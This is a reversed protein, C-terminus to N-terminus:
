LVMSSAPVKAPLDEMDSMDSSVPPPSASPERQKESRGKKKKKERPEPDEVELQQSAEVADGDDPAQEPLEQSPELQSDQIPDESLINMKAPVRKRASAWKDAATKKKKKEKKKKAPTPELSAAAEEAEAEAEALARAEAEAEADEPGEAMLAPDIQLGGEQAEAAEDDEAPEETREVEEEDSHVFEESREAKRSRSKGKRKGKTRAASAPEATVHLVKMEEMDNYDDGDVDPLCGQEDYQTVLHQACDRLSRELHGPVEKKLRHWLLGLTERHWRARFKQDLLRLWPIAADTVAGCDRVALVLRYREQAPM